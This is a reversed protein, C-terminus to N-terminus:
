RRRLLLLIVTLALLAGIFPLRAEDLTFWAFFDPEAKFVYAPHDWGYPRFACERLDTGRLCWHRGYSPFAWLGFALVASGVGLVGLRDRKWAQKIRSM